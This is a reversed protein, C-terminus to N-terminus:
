QVIRVMKGKIIKWDQTFIFIWLKYEKFLYIGSSSIVCAVNLSNM